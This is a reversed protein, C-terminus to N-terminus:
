EHQSAVLLSLICAHVLIPAYAFFFLGFLTAISRVIASHRSPTIVLKLLVWLVCAVGVFGTRLLLEVYLNHPSVEVRSWPNVFRAYGGGFPQGVVWQEADTPGAVRLLEEWGMVRWNFTSQAESPEIISEYLSRLVSEGGSEFALFMLLGTIAGVAVAAVRLRIQRPAARSVVIAFAAFAFATWVSRHQLLVVLTICGAASVGLFVRIRRSKGQTVLMVIAMAAIVLAESAPIVRWGEEYKALLWSPGVNLWRIATIIALGATVATILRRATTIANTPSIIMPVLVIMSAFYIFGRAENAAPQLGFKAMGLVINVGTLLLLVTGAISPRIWVRPANTIVFLLLALVTLDHAYLSVGGATIVFPLQLSAILTSATCLIILWIEAGRASLPAESEDAKMETIM